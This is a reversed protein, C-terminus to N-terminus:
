KSSDENEYNSKLWNGWTTTGTKINPNTNYGKVFSRIVPIPLYIPILGRKMSLTTKWIDHMEKITMIEPGGIDEAIGQPGKQFIEIFDAAVKEVSITQFKMKRPLITVPYRSFAQFLKEVLSHFQTARLITYPIWSHKIMDEVRLKCEYYKMPIKNIGVISPYIFHKIKYKKCAELLRRTGNVDVENYRKIPNTATHFVVDVDKMAEDLGEGTEVDLYFWNSKEGVPKNRSDIRIDMGHSLGIQEFSSGLSGTGGTVLIKM